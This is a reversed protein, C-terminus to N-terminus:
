GEVVEFEERRGRVLLVEFLVGDVDEGVSQAYSISRATTREYSPETLSHRPYPQHPTPPHATPPRHAVLDLTSAVAFVCTPRLWLRRSPGFRVAISSYIPSSALLHRPPSIDASPLLRDAILRHTGRATGLFCTATIDAIPLFTIRELSSSYIIPPCTSLAFPRYTLDLLRM